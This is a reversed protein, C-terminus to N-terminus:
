WAYGSRRGHGPPVYTGSSVVRSAEQQQAWAQQIKITASDQIDSTQGTQNAAWVPLNASLLILLLIRLTLHAHAM